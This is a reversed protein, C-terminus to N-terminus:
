TTLVGLSEMQELLERLDSDATERDIEYVSLMYELIDDFSRDSQLFEWITATVENLTMMGQFEIVKEAVPIVIHTDAITRLLFGEKIKM